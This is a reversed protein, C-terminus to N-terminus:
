KQTFNKEWNRQKLYHDPGPFKKNKLAVKEFEIVRKLKPMGSNQIRYKLDEVPVHYPEFGFVNNTETGAVVGVSLGTRKFVMDEQRSNRESFPQQRSARTSAADGDNVTTARETVGIKVGGYAQNRGNKETPPSAFATRPKPAGLDYSAAREQFEKVVRQTLPRSNPEDM